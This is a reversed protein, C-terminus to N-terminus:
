HEALMEDLQARSQIVGAAFNLVIVPSRQEWDWRDHIYLGRFLEESGEFVEKLTDVFLSKGFRRPRSLFYAGTDQTLTAIHATKDVYSFGGERLKRFTQLSIPLPRKVDPM